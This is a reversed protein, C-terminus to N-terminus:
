FSGDSAGVDIPTAAALWNFAATERLRWDVFRARWLRQDLDTFIHASPRYAPNQGVSTEGLRSSWEELCATVSVSLSGVRVAPTFRGMIRDRNPMAGLHPKGHPRQQWGGPPSKSWRKVRVRRMALSACLPRNETASETPNSRGPMVRCWQKLSDPSEELWRGRLTALSATM